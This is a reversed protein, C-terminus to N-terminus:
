PEGLERRQSRGVITVDIEDDEALVRFPQVRPGPPDLRRTLRVFPGHALGDRRPVPDLPDHPGSEFVGTVSPSL